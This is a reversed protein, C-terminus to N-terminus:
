DRVVAEIDETDVDSQAVYGDQARKDESNGYEKGDESEVNSDLAGLFEGDKVPLSWVTSAWMVPFGLVSFGFILSIVLSLMLASIWLYRVGSILSTLRYGCLLSELRGSLRVLINCNVYETVQSVAWQASESVDTAPTNLILRMTEEALPNGTISDAAGQLEEIQTAAEEQTPCFLGAEIILNETTNGANGTTLLSRYEGVMRCADAVGIGAGTWIAFYLWSVLLPIALFLVHLCVTCGTRRRTFMGTCFSFSFALTSILAFAIMATFTWVVYASITDILDTINNLLDALAVRTATVDPFREPIYDVLTQFTTELLIGAETNDNLPSPDFSVVKGELWLIFDILSLGTKRVEGVFSKLSDAVNLSSEAVVIAGIIGVGLLFCFPLVLATSAVLHPMKAAPKKRRRKVLRLDLRQKMCTNRVCLLTIGLFLFLVLAIFPIVATFALSLAYSTFSGLEADPLDDGWRPLGAFFAVAGSHRVTGTTLAFEEALDAPVGASSM